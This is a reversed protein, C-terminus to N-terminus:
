VNEGNTRCGLHLLKILQKTKGKLKIKQLVKQRLGEKSQDMKEGREASYLREMLLAM